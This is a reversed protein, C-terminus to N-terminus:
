PVLLDLLHRQVKQIALVIPSELISHAARIEPVVHRNRSEPVFQFDLISHNVLDVLVALVM